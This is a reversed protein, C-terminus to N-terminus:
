GGFMFRNVYPWLYQLLLAVSTILGSIKVLDFWYQNDREIKHTLDNSLIKDIRANIDHDCKETKDSLRNLSNNFEKINEQLTEVKTELRTIRDIDKM